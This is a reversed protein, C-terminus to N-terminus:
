FLEPHYPALRQFVNPQRKLECRIRQFAPYLFPEDMLLQEFRGFLNGVMDGSDIRFANLGSFLPVPFAERITHVRMPEHTPDALLLRETETLKVTNVLASLALAGAAQSLPAHDVCTDLASVLWRMSLARALFDASEEHEVLSFFATRATDLDIGRRIRVILEALHLCIKPQGAFDQRVRDLHQALDPDRGTQSPTNGPPIAGPVRARMLARVSEPLPRNAPFARPPVLPDAGAEASSSAVSANLRLSVLQAGLEQDGKAQLREFLAVFGTEAEDISFAMVHPKDRLFLRINATITAVMDTAMAEYDPMDDLGVHIGRVYAHLLFGLARRRAYSRATAAADRQLHVYLPARGFREDLRGTFWSLRNDIEIHQDPYALRSEGPCHLRSEHGTTYNEIARQCAHALTRSGCRGTCLVFVQRYAPRTM